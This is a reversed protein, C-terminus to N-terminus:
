AKCVIRKIKVKNKDASESEGEVNFLMKIKFNGSTQPIGALTLSEKDFALGLEELGELHLSTIHHNQFLSPDFTHTYKINQTGNPVRVSENKFDIIRSRIEWNGMIENQINIITQVKEQYNTDESFEQLLSENLAKEKTTLLKKIYDATENM